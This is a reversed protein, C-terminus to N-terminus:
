AAADGIAATRDPDDATTPAHASWWRRADERTWPHAAALRELTGLLADADRPRGAPDKALCALVLAELEPPVPRPAWASPAPAAETAAKLVIDAGSRGEFVDRGTLLNFAVAGVAYLDVRHDGALPDRLREPAIYAPTGSLVSPSTLRAASAATDGLEQVLGFDLLKVVDYEAGQACLMINPPKIDRHLLGLGHAERLAACVGRLIHIVRAPPLAGERAILRALDIGDLYEMVYYFRGDEGRGFDFVSIANPHRLRATLQVEREFRAVAEESVAEPRLTKLAARRRLLAHEAEHVVGMGGEGLKRLLRYQGLREVAAARRRLRWFLFAAPVGLLPLLAALGSLAWFWLTLPRLPALAEARPVEIAIGFRWRDLWRWAGVVEVGRFDRYGDADVGSQGAVAAAAMRTLPRSAAAVESGRTAAPEGSAPVRIQVAPIRTADARLTSLLNGQADFAYSEGNAGLRALALTRSFDGAADLLIALAGQAAGGAVAPDRVPALALLVPGAGENWPRGDITVRMPRSVLPGDRLADGLLDLAEAGIRADVAHSASAAAVRGAVDLLLWGAVDDQEALGRLGAGLRAAEPLGRLAAAPTQALSARALATALEALGPVRLQGAVADRERDLWLTLAATNADLTTALAIELSRSFAREVAGHVLWASAALAALGLATAIALGLGRRGAGGVTPTAGSVGLRIALRSADREGGGGTM